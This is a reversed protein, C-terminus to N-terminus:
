VDLRERLLRAALEKERARGDRLADTLALLEYLRTDLLAADPVSRYLPSFKYGKVTGQPHPWVPPPEDGLALGNSLSLALLERLPPAAHATPIGRTLNGREPPYVYKVGHILFELLAARVPKKLDEQAMLLRAAQARKVGQHVESVSMRLADGLEAFTWRPNDLVCLKLLILVDQPKLNINM